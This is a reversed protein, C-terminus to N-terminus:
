PAVERKVEVASSLLRRMRAREDGTWHKSRWFALASETDGSAMSRVMAAYNGRPMVPRDQRGCPQDLKDRLRGVEVEAAEARATLREVAELAAPGTIREGLPLGLAKGLEQLGDLVPLAESKWRTLRGVERILWLVTGPHAAAIFAADAEGEDYGQHIGECVIAVGPTGDPPLTVRLDYGDEDVVWPGPTAAEALAELAALDPTQDTM